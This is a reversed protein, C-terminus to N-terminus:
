FIERSEGTVDNSPAMASKRDFVGENAANLIEAGTTRADMPPSENQQPQTTEDLMPIKDISERKGHGKTPNTDGDVPGTPPSFMTAPSNQWKAVDRKVQELEKQFRKGFVDM